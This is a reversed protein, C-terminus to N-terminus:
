SGEYSYKEDYELEFLMQQIKLRALVNKKNPLRRLIPACSLLFREDPDTIGLRADTEKSEEQPPPNPAASEASSLSPAPSPSSSRSPAENSTIKTPEIRARKTSFEPDSPITDDPQEQSNYSTPCEPVPETLKEDDILAMSPQEEYLETEHESEDDTCSALLYETGTTSNYALPQLLQQEDNCDEIEDESEEQIIVGGSTSISDQAPTHMVQYVQKGDQTVYSVTVPGDYLEDDSDFEVYGMSEEVDSSQNYDNAAEYDEKPFAVYPLMFELLRYHIWSKRENENKNRVTKLFADRMSRWRKKCEQVSLNMALAVEVWSNNRLCIRKYDKHLVNYLIPRKKIENVFEAVNVKVFHRKPPLGDAAIHLRNSNPITRYAKSPLRIYQVEELM